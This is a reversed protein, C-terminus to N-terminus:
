VYEKLLKYKKSTLFYILYITTGMSGFCIFLILWILNTMIKREIFVVGFWLIIQNIYFDILTAKFWPMAVYHSLHDFLNEQLSAWVTTGLMLTFLGIFIIIIKKM